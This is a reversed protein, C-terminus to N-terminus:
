GHISLIIFFGIIIVNNLNNVNPVPSVGQRNLSIFLSLSDLWALGPWALGPWALGPWALGALFDSKYSVSVKNFLYCVLLLPLHAV